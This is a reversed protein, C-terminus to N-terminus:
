NLTSNEVRISRVLKELLLLNPQYADPSLANFKRGMRSRYEEYARVNAKVKGKEYPYTPSQYADQPFSLAAVPFWARVSFKGDDTLGQFLYALNENDINDIEIDYYTLFLLGKGNQFEIPKVHAQFVQIADLWELYPISSKLSFLKQSLLRKLDTVDKDIYQVLDKSLSFAQKYDDIKFLVIEPRTSDKHKEAHDDLLHFRIYDPHWNMGGVKCDACDLPFASFKEAKVDPFLSADYIFSVGEFTIRKETASVTAFSPQLSSIASAEYPRQEDEATAKTAAQPINPPTTKSNQTLWASSILVGSIVVSIAALWLLLLQKM